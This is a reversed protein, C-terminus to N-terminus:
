KESQPHKEGKRARLLSFAALAAAFVLSVGDAAAFLANGKYRVELQADTGAPVPVTLRNNEGRYWPVDKGDLTVAYGDYGFLPLAVTSEAQARVHASVSTSEKIYGELAADGEIKVSRDNTPATKTGPITYEVYQLDPSVTQGFPIFVNNRTEDSITPLAAMACLALVLVVAKGRHEGAFRMYAWGGAFALLAATMMLMRWPFQLYDTLGRTLVRVYSWPFLTTAMWAFLLGAAGFLLALQMGGQSLEEKKATAAIYATLMAGLLLPFGIELAFTSLTPDLPDISLEGEGLLFLQAPSIAYLAPDKALSQAGLGQMSYVLFPVLYFACLLGATCAAKIIATLRRERIIRVIFLLGVGVAAAACILTSLMHSMFIASASLALTRWRRKDGLTVEWLGLLFLPLFAMATMEGFACRTFVDSIRYISFTYLVAACLATDRCGFMRKAAMYMAACSVANVLVFFVNVAYQLSAGANMMLAPLYLFLDPYFVSTVAGYGNYSYGGLRVPFQGHGLGDALNCLRVLHFTTDHGIGVTDKLAPASVMLVSFALLVLMGRRKATLYGFAHLAYLAWAGLLLFAFTFAHDRYMPSYLRMDLVDIKSGSEFYVRLQVNQAAERIEFVCEDTVLDRSTKIEAPLIEAGNSATIAIRNDGDAEIMWKLRYRGEPLTFGPGGNVAGYGDGKALDRSTGNEFTLGSWVMETWTKQRDLVGTLFVLAILAACLALAGFIKMRKRNQMDEEDTLM